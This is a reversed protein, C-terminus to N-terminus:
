RGSRLIAGAGQQATAVLRMRAGFAFAGGFYLTGALGVVLAATNAEAFTGGAMLGILVPGPLTAPLWLATCLLVGWANRNQTTSPQWHALALVIPLLCAYGLWFARDAAAEMSVPSIAAAMAASTAAVLLVLLSFGPQPRQGRLVRTWSYPLLAMVAVMAVAWANASAPLRDLPLRLGGYLDFGNPALIAEHLVVAMTILCLWRTLWGPWASTTLRAPLDRDGVLSLWLGMFVATQPLVFTVAALNLADWSAGLWVYSLLIWDVRLMPATLLSAFLMAMWIMHSRFDRSLAAAVAQYLMFLTALTNGWLILQFARGSVGEHLPFRILFGLAGLMAGLIALWVIVGSARHWQRHRRRLQPVFQLAGLLLAIGGLLLHAAMRWSVAQYAPLLRRMGHEGFILADNTVWALLSSGLEVTGSLLAFGHEIALVGFIVLPIMVILAVAKSVFSRGSQPESWSGFSRM